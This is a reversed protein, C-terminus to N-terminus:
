NLKRQHFVTMLWLTMRRNTEFLERYKEQESFYATCIFQNALIVYPLARHEETTLKVVSDYGWLLNHYIELWGSLKAADSEDFSESLIATAAYCPDFIRLNRESLEFDIFAWQKESLLINSPNPDRHIIHKPLKDYLKGFDDLFDECFRVPLNLLTRAKPMAWDKVTEYLNVDDAPAEVQRLILHLQGIIEGVFRAKAGADGEYFDQATMQAGSVRRMVYFFREGDQVYTRSDRTPVPSSVSAGAGEIAKCLASAIRIKEPSATCKLVFEEGVSIAINRKAKCAKMPEKELNWHKLIKLAKAHSINMSEEKSLDPKIPQKAGDRKLFESPTCGFERRFAKYFGAYTQFGYELIVDIRKRGCRIEYVAHTLRRRLIYQMLSLGVSDQFLRYYHFLSYGARASLEAATIQTKLNDEIWDISEQVIGRYEM